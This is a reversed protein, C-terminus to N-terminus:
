VVKKQEGVAAGTSRRWGSGPTRKGIISLSFTTRGGGILSWQDRGGTEKHVVSNRLHLRNENLLPKFTIKYIKTMNMRKLGLQITKTAAIKWKHRFENIM